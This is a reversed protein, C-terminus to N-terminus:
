LVDDRTLRPSPQAKAAGTPDAAAPRSQPPRPAAAPGAAAPRLKPLRAASTPTPEEHRSATADTRLAPPPALREVPDVAPATSTTTQAPAATRAAPPDDRWYRACVLVLLAPGVIGAAVM